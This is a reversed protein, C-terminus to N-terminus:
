QTVFRIDDLRLEATCGSGNANVQWQVGIVQTALPITSSSPNNFGSLLETYTM